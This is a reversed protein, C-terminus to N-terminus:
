NAGRTPRSKKGQGDHEPPAMVHDSDRSKKILRLIAKEKNQIGRGSRTGGNAVLAEQFMKYERPSFYLLVCHSHDNPEDGRMLTELDKNTNGEALTLLEDWNHSTVHKSITM